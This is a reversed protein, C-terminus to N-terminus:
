VYSPDIARLRVALWGCAMEVKKKKAKRRRHQYSIKKSGTKERKFRAKEGSSMEGTTKPTKGSVRKSPRCAPYARDEGKSRGCPKGTKIDVWKEDFWRGM